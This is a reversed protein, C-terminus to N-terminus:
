QGGDKRMSISSILFLQYPNRYFHITPGLPQLYNAKYTICFCLLSIKLRRLTVGSGSQKIGSCVIHALTLDCLCVVLRSELGATGFTQWVSLPAKQTELDDMPFSTGHGRLLWSARNRISNTVRLVILHRVRGASNTAGSGPHTQQLTYSASKAAM